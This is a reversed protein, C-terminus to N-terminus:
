SRLGQQARHTLHTMVSCGIVVDSAEASYPLPPQYSCTDFQASNIHNRAWAVVERDVDCVLIEARPYLEALTATLRGPGWEWDLIRAAAPVDCSRLTRAFDEALSREQRRYTAVDITGAVRQM